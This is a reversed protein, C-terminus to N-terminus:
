TPSIPCFICYKTKLGKPVHMYVNPRRLRLPATVFEPAGLVLWGMGRRSVVRWFVVVVSVRRSRNVVQWLEVVFVAGGGGGGNGGGVVGTDQAGGGGSFKGSIRAPVSFHVIGEGAM